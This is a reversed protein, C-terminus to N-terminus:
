RIRRQLMNSSSKEFSTLVVTASRRVVQMTESAKQEKSASVHHM